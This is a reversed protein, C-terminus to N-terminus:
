NLTRLLFCPAYFLWSQGQPRLGKEGERTPLKQHFSYSHEFGPLTEMIFSNFLSTSYSPLLHNGVWRVRALTSTDHCIPQVLYMSTTWIREKMVKRAYNLSEKAVGDRWEWSSMRFAVCPVPVPAPVFRLERHEVGPDL